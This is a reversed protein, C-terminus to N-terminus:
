EEGAAPEIDEVKRGHERDTLEKKKLEHLQAMQVTTEDAATIILGYAHAQNYAGMVFLVGMAFLGLVLFMKIQM